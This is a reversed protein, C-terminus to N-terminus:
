PAAVDADHGMAAVRFEERDHGPVDHDVSGAVHGREEVHRIVLM